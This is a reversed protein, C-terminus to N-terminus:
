KPVCEKKDSLLKRTINLSYELSPFDLIQNNSKIKINQETFGKLAGYGHTKQVVIKYLKKNCWILYYDNIGQGGSSIFPLVLADRKLFGMDVLFNEYNGYADPLKKELKNWYKSISVLMSDYLTCNSDSVVYLIYVNNKIKWQNQNGSYNSFVQVRTQSNILWRNSILSVGLISVNESKKKGVKCDNFLLDGIENKNQSFANLVILWKCCVLLLIKINDKM